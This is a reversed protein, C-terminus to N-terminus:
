DVLYAHLELMSNIRMHAMSFDQAFLEPNPIAYCTMGARIAAVVGTPSDELALTEDPHCGLLRATELYVDPEPKGRQVQDSGIVTKFWARMGIAELVQVVYSTPSNSAVGLKVHRGDLYRLLAELGEAPTAELCMRTTRLEWYTKRLVDAPIPLDLEARVITAGVDPAKGILLKNIEDTMERGHSVALEQWVRLAIRESEIMLGDFDFIVAKYLM